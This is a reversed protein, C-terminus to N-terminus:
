RIWYKKAYGDFKQEVVELGIIEIRIPGDGLYIDFLSDWFADWSYGYDDLELSSALIAHVELFHNVSTFDITYVKM